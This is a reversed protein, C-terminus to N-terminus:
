GWRGQHGYVKSEFDWAVEVRTYPTTNPFRVAVWQGPNNKVTQKWQKNLSDVEQQKTLNMLSGLHTCVTEAIAAPGQIPKVFEAIVPIAGCPKTYDGTPDDMLKGKLWAQAPSYVDSCRKGQSIDGHVKDKFEECIREPKDGCGKAKPHAVCHYFFDALNHCGAAKSKPEILCNLHITGV